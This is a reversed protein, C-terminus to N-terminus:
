SIGATVEIAAACFWLLAELQLRMYLCNYSSDSNDSVNVLTNSITNEGVAIIM